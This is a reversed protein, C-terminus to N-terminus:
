LPQWQKGVQSVITKVMVGQKQLEAMFKQKSQPHMMMVKQVTLSVKHSVYTMKDADAETAHHDFDVADPHVYIFEYDGLGGFAEPNWICKIIGVRYVPRHQWAMGLVKRNEEKQLDSNVVQTILEALQKSQDTNNGPSVILDPLQSLALPKETREIEYLVNDLTKAEYPKLKKAKILEAVQRGFRYIENRKRTEYLDYEKKYFSRTDEVWKDVTKVLDEDPIGTLALPDTIEGVNEEPITTSTDFYDNQAM